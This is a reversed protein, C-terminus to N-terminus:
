ASAGKERPMLRSTKTAKVSVSEEDAGAKAQANLRKTVKSTDRDREQEPIIQAFLARARSSLAERKDLGELRAKAAEILKPEVIRARLAVKAKVLDEYRAKMGLAKERAKLRRELVGELKASDEAKLVDAVTDEAFEDLRRNVEDEVDKALNSMLHAEDYVDLVRIAFDYKSAKYPAIGEVFARFKEVDGAAEHPVFAANKAGRPMWPVGEVRDVMANWANRIRQANVFETWAERLKDFRKRLEEYSFEGGRDLVDVDVADKKPNVWVRFVNEQVLRQDEPIEYQRFIVYEWLGSKRRTRKAVWGFDKAEPMQKLTEKEDRAILDGLSEDKEKLAFAIAEGLTPADIRLDIGLDKELREVEKFPAHVEAFSAFVLAGVPTLGKASGKMGVLKKESM